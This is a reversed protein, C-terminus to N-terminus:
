MPKVCTTQQLNHSVVEKHRHSVPTNALFLRHSKQHRWSLDSNANGQRQQSWTHHRSLITSPGHQFESTNDQPCQITSTPLQCILPMVANFFNFQKYNNRLTKLEAFSLSLDTPLLSHVSLVDNTTSSSQATQLSHV